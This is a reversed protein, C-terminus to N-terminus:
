INFDMKTPTFGKDVKKATKGTEKLNKVMKTFIFEKITDKTMLGIVRM